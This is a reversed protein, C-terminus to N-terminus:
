LYCQPFNVYETSIPEQATVMIKYAAAPDFFVDL